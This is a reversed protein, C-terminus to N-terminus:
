EASIGINTILKGTKAMDEQMEAAFKGPTSGVPEANLSLFQQKVNAENIVRVVESNLRNIVSTPTQAPAFIGRMTKSEYGPLTAAVTPVGPVLASPNASTVALIRVKGSKVIGPPIQLTSFYMQTEGSLLGNLAPATGKYPIRVINVGAMAKFLEAALHPASGAVSSSYNLAGPRSKAMAILEKVNKIPLTPHVLLISPTVVILSIASFDRIPDYPTKQLLSGLWLNSGIVLLTYGDSPAKSVIEGPIVEGGRNDVIVPQGLAGSMEPAIIRAISDAPGGAEATVIRIPKNPYTQGFIIDAGLVTAALSITWAIFYRM